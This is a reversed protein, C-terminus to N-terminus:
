PLIILAYNLCKRLPRPIHLGLLSKRRVALVRSITWISSIFIADEGTGKVLRRILENGKDRFHLIIGIKHRKKRVPRYVLPLLLVPDGYIEPCDIGRKQLYERTLKGRVACIKKPFGNMPLGADRAGSGWVVNDKSSMFHLNLISGICM